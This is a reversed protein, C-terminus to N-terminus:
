HEILHIPPLKFMTEAFIYTTSLKQRRTPIHIVRNLLVPEDKVRKLGISKEMFYSLTLDPHYM